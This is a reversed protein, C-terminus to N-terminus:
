GNIVYHLVLHVLEGALVLTLLVFVIQKARASAALQAGIWGGLVSGVAMAAGVTWDIAGDIAFLVLAITATPALVFSKIANSQLLPLGVSLVLALLLYTAGDLVIFGLWVGIAFFLAAQRSGFRASALPPERELAAKLKTFLLAFAVFLAATIVYVLDRSPLIDALYAGALAGVTTPVATKAALRWPLAGKRHFLATASLSGVLVPIRNTANATLPDLGIAMLIPLSVASGSSAVTNLLGCILGAAGGILLTWFDYDM